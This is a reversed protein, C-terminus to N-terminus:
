KSGENEKPRNKSGPPRGPGRRTPAPATDKRFVFGAPIATVLTWGDAKMQKSIYEVDQNDVNGHPITIYDRTNM